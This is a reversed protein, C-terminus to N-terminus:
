SEYFVKWIKSKEYEKNESADSKWERFIGGKDQASEQDGGM